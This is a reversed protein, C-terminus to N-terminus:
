ARLQRQLREMRWGPGNILEIVVLIVSVASIAALIVFTYAEDIAGISQEIFGVGIAGLSCRV